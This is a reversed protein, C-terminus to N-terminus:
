FSADGDGSLRDHAAQLAAVIAQLAALQRQALALAMRDPCDADGLQEQLESADRTFGDWLREIRAQATTESIDVESAWGAIMGGVELIVSAPPAGAAALKTLRAQAADLSAEDPLSPETSRSVDLHERRM